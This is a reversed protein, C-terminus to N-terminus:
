EVQKSDTQLLSFSQQAIELEENTPIVLIKVPSEVSNIERIGPSIAVNKDPDLHIGLYDLQQCIRARVVSDNEGVGATFILADLGNLVATYAGIYKKVRYAYLETALEAMADGEDRLNRVDRMDSFGTFGAMGSQKNLITNVRDPSYGHEILYFIVAPDIDGSRTGMVLGALPSFGMSTDLSKGNQVATISCGNGLHVSILKADPKGLWAAAKESVYKHSTGHFGYVRIGEERYLSEPIAYRFAYEPMSQHFATDFVAVQEAKPFTQEAIEICVYNITHLPALPFYSKIKEKVSPTIRTARTFNEGGHVVRHGVAMIEDPHQIVGVNADSLLAVLEAFGQAHTAIPEHREIVPSSPQSVVNHRIFSQDTGIREILGTCLPEIAPMNFLQYKLSSSGANIILIHM